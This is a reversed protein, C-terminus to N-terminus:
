VSVSELVAIGYTPRFPGFGAPFLRVKLREDSPAPSQAPTIKIPVDRLWDCASSAGSWSRCRYWQGPPHLPYVPLWVTRARHSVTRSARFLLTMQSWLQPCFKSTLLLGTRITLGAWGDTCISFGLFPSPLRTQVYQAQFLWKPSM